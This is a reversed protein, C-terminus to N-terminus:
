ANKLLEYEGLPTERLTQADPSITDITPNFRLIRSFLQWDPSIRYQFSYYYFSLQFVVVDAIEKCTKLSQLVTPRPIEDIDTSIIAFSDNAPITSTSDKSTTRPLATRGDKTVLGMKQLGMLLGNRRLYGEREWPSTANNLKPVVVHVIKKKIKDTAIFGWEVYQSQLFEELLNLDRRLGTFTTPSEAIIFYDVQDVLTKLRIELMDLENHFIIYDIIKMNPNTTSLGNIDTYNEVCPYPPHPDDPYYKVEVAYLSGKRRNTKGSSSIIAPFPRTNIKCLNAFVAARHLHQM